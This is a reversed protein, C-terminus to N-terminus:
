QDMFPHWGARVNKDRYRPKEKGSPDPRVELSYRAVSGRHCGGGTSFWTTGRIKAAMIGARNLIERM